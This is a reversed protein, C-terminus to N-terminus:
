NIPIKLLKYASIHIQSIRPQNINHIMTFVNIPNGFLKNLHKYKVSIISLLFFFFYVSLYVKINLIARLQVILQVISVVQYFISHKVYM